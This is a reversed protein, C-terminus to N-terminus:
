IGCMSKLFILSAGDAYYIDNNKDLVFLDTHQELIQETEMTDINLATIGNINIYLRGDTGWRLYKPRWNSTHILKRDVRVYKVLRLDDPHLAFIINEATGWLFGDKGFTLGGIKRIPNAVEPFQLCIELETQKETMNWRFVKAEATVPNAGLGGYVSTSGYVIGNRFVLGTVSQNKVVHRFVQWEKKSFDYISLAGGHKAYGPISGIFLKDEAFCMTFPRDQEKGIRGLFQKQYSDKPMEYIEGHPYVGFIVTDKLPLIGETQGMSFTTLQKKRLNYGAAKTGMYAGIYLNGCSDIELAQLQLKGEKLHIPESGKAGTKVNMRYLMSTAHHFLLLEDGCVGIGKCEEEFVFNTKEIKYSSCDFGCITGNINFYVKGNLPQSTYLGRCGQIKRNLFEQRLLDYIVLLKEKGTNMLIFIYSGALTMSYYSRIEESPCIQEPLFIENKEGTRVNIRFLKANSASTGAYLYGKYYVQSRIYQHGSYVTGYDFFYGNTFKVIKGHPYTGIYVNDEEDCSVHYAAVEGLISGFDEIKKDFPSYRFLKAEDQPAIYIYGASDAGLSWCNKTGPLEASIELRKDSINYANFICPIGSAVTYLMMKGNQELFLDNLFIGDAIPEGLKEKCYRAM